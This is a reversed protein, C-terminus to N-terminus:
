FIFRLSKALSLLGAVLALLKKLVARILNGFEPAVGHMNLLGQACFPGRPISLGADGLKGGAIM